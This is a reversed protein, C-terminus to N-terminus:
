DASKEPYGKVFMTEGGIKAAFAKEPLSELRHRICCFL